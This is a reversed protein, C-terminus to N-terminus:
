GIYKTFIRCICSLAILVAISLLLLIGLNTLVGWDSTWWKGGLGWGTEEKQEDKRIKDIQESINKSLDEIGICCDPGLVKCTGGWRTLLFDIAHRNILSFTREETTVRLLLELSKATQNALRRLRCVLNNQNKILGATYLGEIGPGFFPIWSLGAALDDEQVSWIRLEADCDNENEGSYATDGNKDPFYSFTLSINPPTHQEENTSTNFSPSEDFITETNPIPDFDIETNILGDLFPFIDGEKWFISRKKRFYIPPRTTPSSDPSSNTPHKSTIDSTTMIINTTSNTDQGTTPNETPDLTTNLQANTQESEALERQTDNNTINRTPPSPTSLNYKLTNYTPTTNTNNLLTAPQTTPDTGNHETVAHRSPNTSNQEHQSTSPHLSPTSLITSSQKQETVVNLTTHPGQEGSGSGSIMLDEDDSSPNMTGSKATNIQTNTSHISPTVTPLSPPKLSPPCTQNNTSNYEQLIGFCGTDNRQTENSSTWYKNTSTLNMHRYGQGQRSFIMRHVTKNVIMAAINGETFVKGRYMTTSAVRDYLFFAGWLHLAIGQAHPNQGQIHHVTKCKPYDRINSPPDLLLSKGSPDTVSINYCTKAEEGETYEVNKPPVGTRFAWRKSAELPSDAVKQGSLTFGMLHVDETKQLTGSCVSDVDQPQSNSAIELVPLTKISQILILSILFYITKM